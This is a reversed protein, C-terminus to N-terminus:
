SDDRRRRQGSGIQQYGWTRSGKNGRRRRALQKQQEHADLRAADRDAIRAMPAQFGGTHKSM